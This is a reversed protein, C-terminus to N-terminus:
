GDRKARFEQNQFDIPGTFVPRRGPLLIRQCRYGEAAIRKGIDRMSPRLRDRGALGPRETRAPPPSSSPTAPWRANSKSMPRSWRYSQPRRGDGALGATLSLALLDGRLETLSEDNTDHEHERNNEDSM